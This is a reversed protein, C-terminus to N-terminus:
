NLKLKQKRGIALYLIAGIIPVFIVVLLWSIKDNNKFSSKLIDIISYVWLILSLYIIIQWTILGFDPKIPEFEM